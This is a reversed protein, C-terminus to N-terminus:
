LLADRIIIRAMYPFQSIDEVVTGGIIEYNTRCCVGRQKPNCVLGKMNALLHSREPSPNALTRLMKQKELFEPCDEKVKCEMVTECDGAVLINCKLVVM